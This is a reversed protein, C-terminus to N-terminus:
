ISRNCGRRPTPMMQPLLLREVNGEVLVTADAFYLDCYTLRLYRELFTRITSDTDDYFISLNLM